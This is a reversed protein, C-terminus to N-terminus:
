PVNALEAPLNWTKFSLIIPEYSTLDKKEKKKRSCPAFGSVQRVQEWPNVKSVRMLAGALQHLGVANSVEIVKRLDKFFGYVEESKTSVNGHLDISHVFFKIPNNQKYSMGHVHYLRVNGTGDGGCYYYVTSTQIESDALYPLQKVLQKWRTERDM